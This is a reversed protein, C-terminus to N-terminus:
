KTGRVKRLLRGLLRNLQWRRVEALTAELREQRANVGSTLGRLSELQERLSEVQERLREVQAANRSLADLIIPVSANVATNVLREQEGYITRRQCLLEIALEGNASPLVGDSLDLELQADGDFALLWVQQTGGTDLRHQRMSRVRAGIPDVLVGNVRLGTIEFQGPLVSPDFRVYDPRVGSPLEFKLPTLGYMGAHHVRISRAEDYAEQETRWYLQAFDAREVGTGPGPNEPRAYTAIERLAGVLSERKQQQDAALQAAESQMQALMAGFGELFPEAAAGYEDAAMKVATWGEEQYAAERLADHMRSVMGPLPAADGTVAHHRKSGDLFAGIAPQAEEFAVPWNVGLARGIRAIAVAPDALLDPYLLVARPLGRTGREAEATYQLWLLRSQELSFGERARLSYAVEEPSRVVFLASARIGLGTLVDRWLPLFLCLRPDKIAFLPADAFEDRLLEALQAQAQKAPDSQLWGKPLGRPDRWSRDLASLLAEHIDVVRQHEWFGDPNDAAGTILDAGLRVGLMNLVRTAASTGSRHMGLVLIAQQSTQSM